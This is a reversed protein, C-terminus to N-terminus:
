QDHIGRRSPTDRCLPHRQLRGRGQNGELPLRPQQRDLPRRALERFCFESERPLGMLADRAPSTLPAERRQGNKPLTFGGVRNWQEDVHIRSREFDIAPWRLGDLEGPRMGTFAAVQLWAAFGPGSNKRAAAILAWVM